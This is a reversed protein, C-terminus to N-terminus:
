NMSQRMFLFVMLDWVRNVENWPIIKNDLDKYFSYVSYIMIYINRDFRLM